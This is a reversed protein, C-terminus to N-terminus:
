MSDFGTSHELAYTMTALGVSKACSAFTNRFYVSADYLRVGSVFPGNHDNSLYLGM